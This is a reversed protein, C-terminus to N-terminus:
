FLGLNFYKNAIIVCGIIFVIILIFILIRIIVKTVKMDDKLDKFDDFDDQSFTTTKGMFTEDIKDTYSEKKHEEKEEKKKSAKELEELSISVNEEDNVGKLEIAADNEGEEDSSVIGMVKTNEDNGRLDSLLDLPDMDGSVELESENKILEKATITDILDLLEKEDNSNISAKEPENKNQVPEPEEVEEEEDSINLGKLIDYQTNRVKQLREKEYNVEKKNKAKKLIANIDYERTEDLNIKPLPIEETDGLGKNKTNEHYKEKLIDEIEGIDINDSNDGLISVNSNLDFDDIELNSVERYLNQNKKIRSTRPESKEEENSLNSNYYKGMRSQRTEMFSVEKSNMIM